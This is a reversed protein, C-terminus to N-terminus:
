ATIGGECYKENDLINIAVNSSVIMIEKNATVYLRIWASSPIQNAGLAAADQPRM